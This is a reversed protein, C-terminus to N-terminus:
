IHTIQIAYGDEDVVRFEGRPAHQPFLIPGVEVGAAALAAHAATVDAYYVYFLVAQEEAIVPASARALMLQAGEYELIAWEVEGSAGRTSGGVAFGLKEYFAIARPVDTVHALPVLARPALVSTRQAGKPPKPSM